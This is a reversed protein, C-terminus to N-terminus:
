ASVSLPGVVGRRGGGHCHRLTHGGGGEEKKFDGQMGSGFNSPQFSNKIRPSSDCMFIEKMSGM